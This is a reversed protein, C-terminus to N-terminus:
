LVLSVTQRAIQKMKLRAGPPRLDEYFTVAIVGSHHYLGGM